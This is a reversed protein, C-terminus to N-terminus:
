SLGLANRIIVYASLILMGLFFLDLCGIVLQSWWLGENEGDGDRWFRIRLRFRAYFLASGIDTVIILSYIGVTCCSYLTPMIGLFKAIVFIIISAILFEAMDKKERQYLWIVGDVTRKIEEKIRRM